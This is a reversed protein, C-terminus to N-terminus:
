YREGRRSGTIWRSRLRPGNRFDGLVLYIGDNAGLAFSTFGFGTIGAMRSLDFAISIEGAIATDLAVM